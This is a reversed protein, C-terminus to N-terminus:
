LPAGPFGGARAVLGPLPARLASGLWTSAAIAADLDVGTDLGSRELLYVLDETAINGTAGPAFPCGGIGGLAADLAQVGHQLASVANAYGANRTNHFHARLRARTGAATVEGVIHAVQAPVGAGITDAICIEDVGLADLRRVIATVDEPAIDGEFPCGFAAAITATVRISASAARPVVAGVTEIAEAVSMGQNRRCFTESAIVVVNVEDVGAAAARDFGRENVVLASYSVDRDRPVGAMVAEADSMQPVARPNVFSTVEIRRLGAEVAGHILALKEDTSVPADINQLGDRPGVEVIEM